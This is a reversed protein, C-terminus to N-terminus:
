EHLLREPAIITRLLNRIAAVSFGAGNRWLIRAVISSSTTLKAMQSFETRMMELSSSTMSRTRLFRTLESLRGHSFDHEMQFCAPSSHNLKRHGDSFSRKTEASLKHDAWAVTTAWCRHGPSRKGQHLITSSTCVHIQDSVQDHADMRAQMVAIQQQMAAMAQLALEASM